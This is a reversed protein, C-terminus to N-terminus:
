STSLHLCGLVADANQAIGVLTICLAVKFLEKIHSRLTNCVVFMRLVLAISQFNEIMQVIQACCNSGGAHAVLILKVTPLECMSCSILGRPQSWGALLHVIIFPASHLKCSALSDGYLTIIAATITLASM